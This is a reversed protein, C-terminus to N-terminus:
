RHIRQRSFLTFYNVSVFYHYMERGSSDLAVGKPYYLAASTAAGGDGSYSSTGTGAITVLSDSAVTIKRVRHNKHDGFYVNSATDIALGWPEYLKVVTPIGDGSYGPFGNGAITDIIGTSATVKRIRSTASGIYVNSSSDVLVTYPYWIGASTAAGGDGKSNDAGTGAITTIIGTSTTVKRIRHNSNDAIYYNGSSDFALGGPYWFKASTAVDNDGGYGFYVTGAITTIVGTSATVLRIRHNNTDSIYVNGSSDILVGNPSSLTASTAAGGDGSHSATGTGAITTIIGTSVTIKRVRHNGTDAIYVNGSSDLTIGVPSNLAASTSAGSDGSFTASGTGAITTIIVSSVPAFTPYFTPKVSPSYTPTPSPGFTTGATTM